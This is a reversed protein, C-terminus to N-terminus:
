IGQACFINCPCKQLPITLALLEALSDAWGLPLALEWRLCWLEALAGEDGSRLSPVNPGIRSSEKEPSRLGM